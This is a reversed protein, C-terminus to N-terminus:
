LEALGILLIAEAAPQVPVAVDVAIPFQGRRPLSRLDM